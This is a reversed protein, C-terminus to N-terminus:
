SKVTKTHLYKFLNACSQYSVNTHQSLLARQFAKSFEEGGGM